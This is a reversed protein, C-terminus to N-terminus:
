VASSISLISVSINQRATFAAFFYLSCNVFAFFYLSRVFCIAGAAPSRCLFYVACFRRLRPFNEWPEATKKKDKEEKGAKRRTVLNLLMVTVVIVATVIFVGAMGKGIVPLVDYLAHIDFKM